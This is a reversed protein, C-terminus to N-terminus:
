SLEAAVSFLDNPQPAYGQVAFNLSEHKLDAALRSIPQIGRDSLTLNETKYFREADYSKKRVTGLVSPYYMSRIRSFNTALSAAVGRTGFSTALCTSSGVKTLSRLMLPELKSVSPCCLPLFDTSHALATSGEKASSSM